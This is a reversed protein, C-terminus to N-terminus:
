LSDECHGFLKLYESESIIDIPSEVRDLYVKGELHDTEHQFVRAVFDELIKEVPNGNEDVYQVKIAKYRPVLARIGPISLCGEWDKEKEGSLAEFIPNIMVTPTMLPAKPYRINPRSAVIIIRKLQSIQPAALGVGQTAALTTQMENIIQRIVPSDLKDVIEAHQRLVKAGLQAIECPQIM